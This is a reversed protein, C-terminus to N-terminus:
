AYDRDIEFNGAYDRFVARGDEVAAVCTQMREVADLLERDVDFGARDLDQVAALQVMGFDGGTANMVRRYTTRCVALLTDDATM